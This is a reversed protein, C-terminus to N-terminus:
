RAFNFIDRLWDGVQEGSPLEPVSPQPQCGRIPPLGSTRAPLLRTQECRPDAPQGDSLAFNVRDIGAPAKLELSDVGRGDLYRSYIRLAGSAGTLGTVGNDDRGVWATVLEENDLGAFWADRLDNTSGTKGAMVRNPFRAALHAATGGGVVRTMGYLALYGAEPDMVRSAKATHQYILEGAEDQIARISTLPQYLGQNALTLYLQNVELPTLELTGLLMSPYPPIPQEGGMRKLGAVINDLGVSMGLNVTPVNLSKALADVLLVTGRYQRDYNKPRWVQGGESRLAVPEDKLPSSLRFGHELGLAYVPPKILSGIQRRASLARNFGAFAPDSGGVVASVEGKRWNSVVMAAELDDRKTRGRLQKIQEAVAQEATHQAIPDLSTFIRLGNQNLFGTGFRTNLEDKLLGMFAPTRGYGMRGREILGLDRGSSQEYVQRDIHGENALLRLVLDRRERARESNRWPDYFSPGKVLAVLLAMQDPNLENIPLGFYFYSALGFGYVGKSGNQGLYVENLYAELIEDKDYRFDIILAMYAEQVKRWLSRDQSLFFNKALQQTLTSGGQVTRGAKINVVLARLIALPSVGDHQYFDRDEVTLLAQVLLEPVQELRVLLRDEREDVNLRDLLVPDMRAYGLERGNGPNQMRSLRQGEFSLLLTRAQEAGDSFNFPRRHIEIRNRSVSYEGPRSPSAVKRYNLMQLERLMQAHSLKQGPFLELPRSYVLAPLSWKQGEFRARVQSDLYIGFVGMLVTGVLALKLVLGWGFRRQKKLPKKRTKRTTKKAM